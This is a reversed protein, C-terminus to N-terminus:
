SLSSVKYVYFSSSIAAANSEEEALVDIIVHYRVRDCCLRFVIMEDGVGIGTGLKTAINVQSVVKQM